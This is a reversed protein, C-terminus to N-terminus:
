RQAPRIDPVIEIDEPSALEIEPGDHWEIVGRVRVTKGAYSQPDIGADRFAKLDDPAVTATFDTKWDDGFNIYVRGSRLAASTATGQVIQFTGLDAKPVGTASRVAYAALTWIGAHRERADAEAAYLEKVCERRDPEISVRALGERLLADQIWRDGDDTVFAQARLRGYRDEKPVAATAAVMHGVALGHLVDLAQDALYQPAHDRAGGPLRIGELKVARGDTGILLGNREIRAIPLDPIEVPPACPPLAFAPGAGLLLFLATPFFRSM